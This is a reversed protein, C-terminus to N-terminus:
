ELEFLSDDWLCGKVESSLEFTSTHSLHNTFKHHAHSSSSSVMSVFSVDGGIQIRGVSIEVVTGRGNAYFLAVSKDATTSMFAQEVGGRWEPMGHPVWFESPLLMSGLGRYVKNNAPLQAFQGLKKIGSAICFLLTALTNRQETGGSVINGELLKLMAPPFNRCIANIPM